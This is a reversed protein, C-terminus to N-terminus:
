RRATPRPPRPLRAPCRPTRVPTRRSPLLTRLSVATSPHQVKPGTTIRGSDSVFSYEGDPIVYVTPEDPDTSPLQLYQNLDFTELNTIDPLGPPNVANAWLAADDYDGSPPEPDPDPPEPEPEPEPDPEQSPAVLERLLTWSVSPYIRSVLEAYVEVTPHRLREALARGLARRETAHSSVAEGDVIVSWAANGQQTFDTPM